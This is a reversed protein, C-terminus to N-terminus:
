DFDITMGREDHGPQIGFKWGAVVDEAHRNRALTALPGAAITMSQITKARLTNAMVCGAYHITNACGARNLKQAEKIQAMSRSQADVHSEPVDGSAGGAEIGTASGTQQSIMADLGSWFGRYICVLTVCFVFEWWHYLFGQRDGEMSDFFSYFRMMTTFAGTAEVIPSNLLKLFMRRKHTPADYDAPWIGTKRYEDWTLLPYFYRILSDNENRGGGFFDEKCCKMQGLFASAKHPAKRSNQAVAVELIDIWAGADSAAKRTAGWGVHWPDVKVWGRLGDELLHM